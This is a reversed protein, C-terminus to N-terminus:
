EPIKALKEEGDESSKVLYDGKRLLDFGQRGQVCTVKIRVAGKAVESALDRGFCWIILHAKFLDKYFNWDKGSLCGKPCVGDVETHSCPSGSYSIEAPKTIQAIQNELAKLRKSLEATTTM